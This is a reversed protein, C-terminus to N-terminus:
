LSSFYIPVSSDPGTFGTVIRNMNRAYVTNSNITVHIVALLSVFRANKM